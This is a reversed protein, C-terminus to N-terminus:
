RGDDGGSSTSHVLPETGAIPVALAQAIRAITAESERTLQRWTVRTVRLGAAVLRSGNRRDREFRDATTHFAFGDVEVVLGRERWLFDVEIGDVSTNVEPEPLEARRMLRLFRKEAESKTAGNRGAIIERLVRAGRTRPYADLLSLLAERTTLRRGFAENVARDVDHITVEAWEVSAVMGALDLLTRAPTTIPIGEWMTIEEDRLSACRHVRIGRKRGHDTARAIVHVARSEASQALDQLVASTVHSVVVQGACTLVAAHERSGTRMGGRVAYVGRHLPELLGARIRRDVSAARIGAAILQARSVVGHQGAALENIRIDIAMGRM